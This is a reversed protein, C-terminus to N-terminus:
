KPDRLSFTVKAYVVALPINPDPLQSSISQSIAYSVGAHLVEPNATSLWRTKKTESVFGGTSASMGVQAVPRCRIRVPRDLMRIKCGNDTLVDLETGPTNQQASDNVAYVLRPATISAPNTPVNTGDYTDYSPMLIFQVSKICYQNYLATYDAVQPIANLAMTLLGASVGSASGNITSVKLTETFTPTGRPAGLRYRAAGMGSRGVRRIRRYRMGGKSRVKRRAVSIYPM